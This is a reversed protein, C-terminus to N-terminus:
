FGGWSRGCLICKPRPDISSEMGAVYLPEPHEVGGQRDPAGLAEAIAKRDGSMSGEGEDGDSSRGPEAVALDAPLGERLAAREAQTGDTRSPEAGPDMAGSSRQQHQVPEGTNVRGFGIGMFMSRMMRMLPPMRQCGQIRFYM